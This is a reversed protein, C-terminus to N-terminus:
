FIFYDKLNFHFFECILFIHRLIFTVPMAYIYMYRMDKDSETDAVGAM